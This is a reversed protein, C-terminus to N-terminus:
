YVQSSIFLLNDVVKKSCYDNYNFHNNLCNILLETRYYYKKFLSKEEETFIWNHRINRYDIM